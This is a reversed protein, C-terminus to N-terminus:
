FRVGIFLRVARGGNQGPFPQPFQNDNQATGFRSSQIYGTPLGNADLPSNPDATVTTDWAIQKRNNLVNFFDVKVWPTATRWVPINYTASFDLLGYGKFNGAGREGFYVNQSNAGNIDPYGPNRALEITTIPYAQAIYNFVQGSNVRWVPGLSASGFRGFKPNYIGFVRLKHRQYDFLRGDPQLRNFAPGWVEPFDQYIPSSGPQNAAEGAFTGNNRLQLTYHGGIQTNGPFRYGSQFTMGQYERRDGDNANRFVVNTVTPTSVGNLTPTTLGNSLNIFDEVFNHWTRRTYGVKVFSRPGLEQGLSLTLERATPSSLGPAVFINQTPFSASVFSAYNKPDLGPAFDKGQGAPGTYAWTIRSPNGVVTNSGFQAENYKGAYHGYTAQLVTRGDKRLDYSAGLRPVITTTNVTVIDGTASGRVAEFRTGLTLTLAPMPIWHDQVYLSTTTIDTKAGPTALWNQLRSVGPTFVPIPSLRSDLAPAGNAILYDTQFVYNTASQANGGTHTSVYVEAGGKLDHTGYRRNSLTYALSGSLQKNNRDEPDNASFFPANYLLSAPVSPALGRTRFPSDTIASSTGGANRFGFTKRSFQLTGFIKRGLVGNYNVVALDTPTQRNILGLPDLEASANLSPLNENANATKLYSGSVIQNPALTGTLKIQGRKNLNKTTYGNGGLVQVFTGPTESSEYRGATFFWLQDAKIRGGATGEYFKALVTSHKINNADERPTTEIWSPKTFNERVSGTFANGGSKTIVNIVGGSFRGYEASIGGILVNTEEIADEVYLNNPQAFLNDDIDVGDLLFVNDYAFGGSITVQGANPTNNTLGPALEAVDQPRRTVPLLDLERKAYSQSTTVTTLPSPTSATVTVVETRTALQMISNVVANGGVQLEVGDIAASQFSELRFRVTYMGAPLGRLLYVGNVDSVASREGQLAPSAATATVGPLPLGDGSQVTGTITGTQTGQAAVSIATVFVMFVAAFLRLKM